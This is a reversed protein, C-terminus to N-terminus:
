RVTNEPTRIHVSYFPHPRIDIITTQPQNMCTLFRDGKRHTHDATKDRALEPQLNIRDKYRDILEQSINGFQEINGEPMLVFVSSSQFKVCDDIRGGKKMVEGFSDNRHREHQFEPFKEKAEDTKFQDFYEQSINSYVEIQNSPLTYNGRKNKHYETIVGGNQMCRLFKSKKWEVAESLEEESTDSTTEQFLELAKEQPVNKAEIPFSINPIDKEAGDPMRVRVTYSNPQISVIHGGQSICEQLSSAEMMMIITAEKSLSNIQ